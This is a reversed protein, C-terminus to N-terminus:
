RPRVVLFAIVGFAAVAVGVGCWLSRWGPEWAELVHKIVAFAAMFGLATVCSYVGVGFGARRGVSRGMLALSVVSLASQGLGRTLLGLAFLGPLLWAGWAPGAQGMGVVAAALGLTVGLLMARSGVRDILWGCPLCFAAGLLTAWLNVLAFTVRDLRLDAL